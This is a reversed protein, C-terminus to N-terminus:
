TMSFLGVTNGESDKFTAFYGNDPSSDSLPSKAIVTEGGAAQVRALAANIGDQPAMYILVGDASPTFGATELLSVGPASDGDGSGPLVASRRGAGMDMPTSEGQLVAEYFTKARDFDSVPIEVWPVIM